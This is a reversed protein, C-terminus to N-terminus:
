TLIAHPALTEVEAIFQKELNKDLKRNNIRIKKVVVFKRSNNVPVRYVNGCGGKGILNDEGLSSLIDDM